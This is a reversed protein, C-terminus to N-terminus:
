TKYFAEKPMPQLWLYLADMLSVPLVNRLRAMMCLVDIWHRIGDVLYRSDPNTSLIADEFADLVRKLDKDSSRSNMKPVRLYTDLYDQGYAARIEDDVSDILQQYAVKQRRVNEVSFLGTSLGFSGPQILIVKVGFRRMELRLCDTFGEAGFKSMVYASHAPGALLGRVSTVNIVRGKRQRVLPLFAKCMRVMGFLNVESVRRYIAMTQVEVDGTYLIGANNILAWLGEKHCLTKVTHFCSAVSEDSTVDLQLVCMRRSGTTKLQKAGDSEVSLCAAIVNLGKIDLLRALSNGFGTDCGTILVYKGHIDVRNRGVKRIIWYCVYLVAGLLCTYVTHGWVSVFVLLIFSVCLITEFVCLGFSTSM